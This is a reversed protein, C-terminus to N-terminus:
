FNLSSIYLSSLVCQSIGFNMEHSRNANLKLERTGFAHEFQVLANSVVCM